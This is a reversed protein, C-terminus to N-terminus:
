RAGARINEGGPISRSWIRRRMPSNMAESAEPIIRLSEIM